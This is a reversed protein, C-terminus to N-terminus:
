SEGKYTTAVATGTAYGMGYTLTLEDVSAVEDTAM